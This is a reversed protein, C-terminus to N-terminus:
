NGSLGTTTANALTIAEDETKFRLVCSCIGNIYSNSTVTLEPSPIFYLERVSFFIGESCQASIKRFFINRILFFSFM